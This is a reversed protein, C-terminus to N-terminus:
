PLTSPRAPHGRRARSPTAARGRPDARRQGLRAAATVERAGAQGSASSQRWTLAAGAAALVVPWVLADTFWIGLDRLVLLASLSLLAIGAAVRWDGARRAPRDGEGLLGAPVLAWALAYLVIGAGGAAAAAVFAARLLLPDIGLRRGLGACVGGVVGHELDRRLGPSPAAAPVTQTSPESMREHDWQPPPDGPEVPTAPEVPM